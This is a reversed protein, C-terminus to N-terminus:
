YTGNLIAISQELYNIQLTHLKSETLLVISHKFTTTIVRNITPQTLLIEISIFDIQFLFMGTEYKRELKM